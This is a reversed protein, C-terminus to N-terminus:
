HHNNILIKQLFLFFLTTWSFSSKPQAQYLADETQGLGDLLAALDMVRLSM